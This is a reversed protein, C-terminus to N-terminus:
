ANLQMKGSSISVNNPMQHGHLNQTNGYEEVEEKLKVHLKRNETHFGFKVAVVGFANNNTIASRLKSLISPIYANSETFFHISVILGTFLM